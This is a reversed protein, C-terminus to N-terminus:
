RPSLLTRIDKVLDGPEFNNDPVYAARVIQGRDILYVVVSHEVIYDGHGTAPEDDPAGGGPASDLPRSEVEYARWVPKLAERTGTLFLMGPPSPRTDLYEAAAEPTDREPDLSVGVFRVQRAEEPSLQDAVLKLKLSTIPCATVCNSYIFTLAVVEGRFDIFHVEEGSQDILAFGRAPTPTVPWAGHLGDGGRCAILLVALLPLLYGLRARNWGPGPPRPM